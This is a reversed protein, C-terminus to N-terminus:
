RGLRRQASQQDTVSVFVASLWARLSDACRHLRHRACTRGGARLPGRFGSNGIRRARTATRLQRAPGPEGGFAGASTADSLAAVTSRCALDADLFSQRRRHRGAGLHAAAAASRHQRRTTRRPLCQRGAGAGRSRDDCQRQAATRCRGTVLNPVPTRPTRHRAAQRGGHRRDNRGQVAPEASCCRM